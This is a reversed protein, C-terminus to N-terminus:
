DIQYKTADGGTIGCLFGVTDNWVTEISDYSEQDRDKMVQVLKKPEGEYGEKRKYEGAKEAILEAETESCRFEKRLHTKIEQEFEEFSM